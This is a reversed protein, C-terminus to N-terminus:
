DEITRFFHSEEISASTEEGYLPLCAGLAPLVTTIEEVMKQALRRISFHANPASRLAIFHILSRLNCTILFRRNCANPVIYSAAQPNVGSLKRFTTKVQKMLQCYPETLGSQSILLPVAYGLYPTLPQPTLTMMRHRKVEYYAGQDLMVDFTFTTHELERLPITHADRNCILQHLLTNKEEPRLHACIQKASAYDLSADQSFRYYSAALIKEVADPEFQVLSCWKETLNVRPPLSFAKESSQLYPIENAYKLLTPVSAMASSKIEGGVERVESLPSSLMKGIAHELARANITIGVNALSSAPLLFRSVDVAYSHIRREFAPQTENELRPCNIAATRTLAPLFQAYASFLSCCLTLYDSEFSTGMWEAPQYFAESDWTQYRTSKETYSALRNSELCEM